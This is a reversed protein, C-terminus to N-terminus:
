KAAKCADAKGRFESMSEAISPTLKDMSETADDLGASDMISASALGAAMFDFAKGVYGFGDEAAAIAARCEAPAKDVTVTKTITESQPAPAPTSDAGGSASGISVGAVFITIIGVTALTRKAFRVQRSKKAARAAIADAQVNVPVPRPTNNEM